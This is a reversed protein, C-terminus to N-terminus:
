DYWESSKLRIGQDFTHFLNTQTLYSTMCIYIVTCLLLLQLTHKIKFTLDKQSCDAPKSKKM